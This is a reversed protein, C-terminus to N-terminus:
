EITSLMGISLCMFLLLCDYCTCLVDKLDVINSGNVQMESSVIDQIQALFWPPHHVSGYQVPYRIRSSNHVRMKLM